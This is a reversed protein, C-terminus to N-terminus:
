PQRCAALRRADTPVGAFGAKPWVQIRWIGRASTILPSPPPPTSTSTTTPTAAAFGSPVPGHHAYVRLSTTM